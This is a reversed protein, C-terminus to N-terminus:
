KQFFRGNCRMYGWLLIFGALYTSTSINESWKKVEAPLTFYNKQEAPTLSQPSDFLRQEDKDLIEIKRM